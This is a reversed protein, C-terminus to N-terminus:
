GLMNGIKAISPAIFIILFAPLMFVSIPIFLTTKLKAIMKEIRAEHNSRTLQAQRQLTDSIDAGLKQTQIVSSAFAAAEDSTNTRSFSKMCDELLVGAQMEVNIRTLEQRLFTHPLQQTVRRLAPQFTSGTAIVVQLLDLAEPLNTQIDKARSDRLSLHQAYPLFGGLATFILPLIASPIQEVPNFAALLLGLLFGILGGAIQLVFLEEANIKWPNGSVRLLETYKANLQKPAINEPLSPMFNDLLPRTYKQSEGIQEEGFIDEAITVKKKARVPSLIAYLFFFITLGATLGIFAPYSAQDM